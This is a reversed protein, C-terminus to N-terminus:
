FEWDYYYNRIGFSVKPLKSYVTGDPTREKRYWSKYRYVWEEDKPEYECPKHDPFFGKLYEDREANTKFYLWDQHGMGGGQSHDACISYPHVKIYRDSIVETVYYCTRDSWYYMTIDTGVQIPAFAKGEELRNMINGYWKAM